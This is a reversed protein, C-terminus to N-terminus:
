RGGGETVLLRAVVGDDQAEFDMSAKDTEIVALSDGAKFADGEAVHWKSIIGSEM